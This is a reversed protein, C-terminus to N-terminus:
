GETITCTTVYAAVTERRLSEGAHLQWVGGRRERGAVATAHHFVGDFQSEVAVLSDWEAGCHGIATESENVCM